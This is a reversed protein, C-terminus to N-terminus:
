RGPEKNKPSPKGVKPPVVKAFAEEFAARDESAGHERAAKIFRASQKRDTASKPAKGTM